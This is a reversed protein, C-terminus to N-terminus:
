ASRLLADPNKRLYTKEFANLDNIRIRMFNLYQTYNVKERRALRLNNVEAPDNRTQVCREVALQYNQDALKLQQKINQSYGVLKERENMSITLPLSHDNSFTASNLDKLTKTQWQRHATANNLLLQNDYGAHESFDVNAWDGDDTILGEQIRVKKGQQQVLQQELNKIGDPSSHYSYLADTYEKTVANLRGVATIEQQRAVKLRQLNQENPQADYSLQAHSAEDIIPQAEQKVTKYVEYTSHMTKFTDPSCRPGPKEQCM